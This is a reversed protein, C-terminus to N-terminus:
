WHRHGWHRHGGGFSFGFSPGYGYYPYYDPGYGYYRRYIRRCHLHGRHRWCRRYAAPEAASTDVEVGKLSMMPAANAPAALLGLGLAAAALSIPRGLMTEEHTQQRARDM